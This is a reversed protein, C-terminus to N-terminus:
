QASKKARLREHKIELAERLPADTAVRVITKPFLLAKTIGRKTRVEVLYYQGPRSLQALQWRKAFANTGEWVYTLDNADAYDRLAKQNEFEAHQMTGGRM